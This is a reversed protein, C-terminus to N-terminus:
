EERFRQGHPHQDNVVWPDGLMHYGGNHWNEWFGPRDEEMFEIARVWKASKWAYLKPIVLRLPFGHDPSLTEENHKMALLCDEDFFYKVPLNTSFGFECHIMVYRAKDTLQIHNLLEKTSVGEWLNDLKSWRTVCHMDAFVRIRPLECFESWNWKKTGIIQPSPLIRFDWHDLSYEPVQGVHLIPWKRTEIQFPPIRNKRTTDPSIIPQQNM